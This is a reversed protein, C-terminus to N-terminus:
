MSRDTITVGNINDLKKMESKIILPRVALPLLESLLPIERAYDEYENNFIFWLDMNEKTYAIEKLIILFLALPFAYMYPLVIMISMACIAFSLYMPHRYYHFMGSTKLGILSIFEKNNDELDIIDKGIYWIFSMGILYMGFHPLLKLSPPNKVPNIIFFIGIVAIVIIKELLKDFKRAKIYLSIIQDEHNSFYTKLTGNVDYFYPFLTLLFPQNIKRSIVFWPLFAIFLLSAFLIGSYIIHPYLPYNYPMSAAILSIVICPVVPISINLLRHIVSSYRPLSYKNSNKRSPSGGTFSADILQSVGPTSIYSNGAYLPAISTFVLSFSLIVIFLQKTYNSITAM